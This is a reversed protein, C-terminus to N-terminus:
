QKIQILLQTLVTLDARLKISAKVRQHNALNNRNHSVEAMEATEFQLPLNELLQHPKNFSFVVYLSSYLVSLTLRVPIVRVLLEYYLHQDVLDQAQEGVQVVHLNLREAQL